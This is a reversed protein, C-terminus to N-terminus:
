PPDSTLCVPSPSIAAKGDTTSRDPARDLDLLPEGSAVVPRVRGIRTRMPMAAPSGTVSRSSRKPAATWSAARSQAALRAPVM